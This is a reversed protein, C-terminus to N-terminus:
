SRLIIQLHDPFSRPIIQLHDTTSSHIIQLHDTRPTVGQAIVAPIVRITDISFDFSSEPFDLSVFFFRFTYRTCCVRRYEEPFCAFPYLLDFMFHKVPRVSLDDM